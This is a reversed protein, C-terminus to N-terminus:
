RESVTALYSFFISFCHFRFAKLKALYDLLELWNRSRKTLRLPRVLLATFLRAKLWSVVMAASASTLAAARASDGGV